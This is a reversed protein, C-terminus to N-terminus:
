RLRNKAAMRFSLSYWFLRRYAINVILGKQEATILQHLIYQKGSPDAINSRMDQQFKQEVGVMLECDNIVIEIAGVGIQLPNEL